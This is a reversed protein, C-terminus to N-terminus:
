PFLYRFGYFIVEDLFLVNKALYKTIKIIGVPHDAINKLAQKVNTRLDENQEDLLNM